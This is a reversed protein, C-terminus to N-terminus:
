GGTPLAECARIFSQRMHETFPFDIEHALYCFAAEARGPRGAQAAADGCVAAVGQWNEPWHAPEPREEFASLAAQFRQTSEKRRTVPEIQERHQCPEGCFRCGDFPLLEHARHTYFHEMHDRVAADPLFDAFGADDKYPPVRMFTAKEFGTMFVAAQGVRLKGMFREQAEDM